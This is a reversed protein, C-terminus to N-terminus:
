ASGTAQKYYRCKMFQRIRNQDYDKVDGVVEGNQLHLTVVQMGKPRVDVDVFGGYSDHSPGEMVRKRETEAEEKSLFYKITPSDIFRDAQSIWQMSHFSLRTLEVRQENYWKEFSAEFNQHWRANEEKLRAQAANMDHYAQEKGAESAEHLKPVASRLFMEFFRQFEERSLSGTHTKDFKTLAAHLSEEAPEAIKMVNCVASVLSHLENPDLQDNHDTDFYSFHQDCISNRLHVNSVLSQLWAENDYPFAEAM